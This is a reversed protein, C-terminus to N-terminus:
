VGFWQLGGDLARAAYDVQLVRRRRPRAAAKSGHLIPTAYAWVDGLDALCIAVGFTRVVGHAEREPILGRHSGPAVLLPANDEDVDDLHLRLTTMGQLLDFPPAVHILGAKVSWPGYGPTELRERVVITRDQHWALSWNAIETKDFLVARVPRADEGILGAAIRGMPGSATLVPDLATIGTLRLGAVDTPLAALAALM